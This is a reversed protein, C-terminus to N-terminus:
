TEVGAVTAVPPMINKPQGDTGVELYKKVNQVFM